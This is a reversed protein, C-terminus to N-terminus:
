PLKIIAQYRQVAQVSGGYSGPVSPDAYGRGVVFAFAPDNGGGAFTTAPIDENASSMEEGAALEFERYGPQGDPPPGPPVIEAGLRYIRGNLQGTENVFQTGPDNDVRDDSIIVYAGSAAADAARSDTSEDGLQPDDANTITAIFIRDTTTAPNSDRYKLQAKVPRPELEAVAKTGNAHRVTDVGFKFAERDRIRVAIVTLKVFGAGNDRQYMPVFAFRPDDSQILNQCVSNWLMTGTMGVTQAGVPGNAATAPAVRIDGFSLVVGPPSPPAPPATYPLLASNLFKTGQLYAVGNRTVATGVTEEMTAQTQQIAVPFIAAIMIFGIGLVAVAFLVEAFSFGRRAIRHEKKMTKM